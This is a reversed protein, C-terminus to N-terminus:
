SKKKKIGRCLARYDKECLDWKKKMNKDKTTKVYITYIEDTGKELRVKCRDCIYVSNNKNTVDKFIIM